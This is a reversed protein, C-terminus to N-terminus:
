RLLAIIELMKEGLLPSSQPPGLDRILPEASGKRLEGIKKDPAPYQAV